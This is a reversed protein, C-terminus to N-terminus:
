NKKSFDIAIFVDNDRMFSDAKCIQFESEM